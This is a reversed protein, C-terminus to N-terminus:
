SKEKSTELDDKDMVAAIVVIATLFVIVMVINVYEM